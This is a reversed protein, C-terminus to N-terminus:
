AKRARPRPKVAAETPAVATTEPAAPAEIGRGSRLWWEAEDDTADVVTGPALEPHHLVLIKM